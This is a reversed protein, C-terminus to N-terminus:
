IAPSDQNDSFQKAKASEFTIGGERHDSKSMNIYFACITGHAAWAPSVMGVVWPLSGTYGKYICYFALLLGGITITWLLPRTDMVLRKSFEITRKKPLRKGETM